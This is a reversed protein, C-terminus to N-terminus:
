WDVFQETTLPGAPALQLAVLTLRRVCCCLVCVGRRLARVRPTVTAFLKSIEARREIDCIFMCFQDFSIEKEKKSDAVENFRQEIQQPQLRFGLKELLKTIEARSVGGSKDKDATSFLSQLNDPTSLEAVDAM